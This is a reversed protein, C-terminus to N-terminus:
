RNDVDRSRMVLRASKLDSWTPLLLSRLRMGADRAVLLLFALTVGYSISVAAAVGTAGWLPLFVPIAVAGVIWGAAEGRAAAGHKDLGRLGDGLVLRLSAAFMGVSLVRVLTTAATFDSGYVIDLLPAAFLFAVLAGVGSCVVTLRSFLQAWALAEETSHSSAVRPLALAGLTPGWVRVLAGASTAVYYLGGDVAGLVSTTLLVDLQLTDVPALSGVFTRYGVSWASVLTRRDISPSLVGDRVEKTSVVLLAALGVLLSAVFAAAFIRVGVWGVVALVLLAVTNTSPILLRALNYVEIRGAGQNLALLMRIAYYLPGYAVLFGVATARTESSYGGLAVLVVPIGAAYLALCQVAVLPAISRALERETKQRSATLYTYATYTGMEAVSALVAPWLIVAALEGRGSVGLARAAVIGSVLGVLMTGATVTISQVIHRGAGNPSVPLADEAGGVHSSEPPMHM